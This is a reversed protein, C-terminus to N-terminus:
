SADAGPGFGYGALIEQGSASLVADIFAQAGPNDAGRVTLAIPYHNVVQDAGPVEIIEVADGASKADTTYVLGADAEGAEVKGRVDTVKQEESVPTLTVGLKETLEATANGCPVGPACVVLRAGDLSDDLGTIGAPNGSPTILTLVNTAFEQADGVLNEESARNMNKEDAAAFVDAPAGEAMQDVLTSSGEFSFTVELDPYESMLEEAIDTFAKHLSAAAFVTVTGSVESSDQTDSDNSPTSSPADSPSSCAGLLLASAGMLALMARRIRTM